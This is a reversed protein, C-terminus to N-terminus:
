VQAMNQTLSQNRLLQESKLKQLDTVVTQHITRILKMLDSCYISPNQFQDRHSYRHPFYGGGCIKVLDCEQCVPSLSSWKTQREIVKPSWYVDEFSNEFINMGLKTAGPYTVKLCDVAEIDGNTEIVAFDVPELGWEESIGKFGLMLSIIEQFKRILTTQPKENYWINFIQILWDAYPTVDLSKEKAPPRLDYHALPLLFDISPPSYQKFYSYVMLPDNKLDIVCLIGSWIKRGKESSLLRLANEVKDFSSQGQHDLRHLDNAARHGDMSLGILINENSCFDLLHEDLLVGNTQIGFNLQVDPTNEIIIDRLQRLYDLGLLLPEGGHLIVNLFSLKHIYAHESIRHGLQAATELSMKIPQERWSQDIHRYMYCYDCDINCRSAVKCILSHLPGFKEM